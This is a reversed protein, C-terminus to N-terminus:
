TVLGDHPIVSEFVVGMQTLWDYVEERSHQVYYRVWDVNADKGWDMFDRLAIEPSDTIKKSRQLPTDVISVAGNSVVAHGGFVSFTDIVMVSSAARAAELAASLGAIGAGVILIDADPKSIEQAATSQRASSIDLVLVSM